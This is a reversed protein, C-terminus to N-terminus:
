GRDGKSLIIEVPKMTRNKYLYSWVQGRKSEGNVTGGGVLGLGRVSGTKCEQGENKRSLTESHLQPQLPVWSGGADAEPTRPNSTHGM